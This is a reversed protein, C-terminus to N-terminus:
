WPWRQKLEDLVRGFELGSSPKAVYESAGLELARLRDDERTSSSFVVVPTSAYDPHNRMWQLLEFGSMGPLNLDLLLVTPLPYEKRDGYKGAGSMYEIAARGDRVVRLTSEMDKRAFAREMFLVDGDEDEVYLVTGGTPKAGATVQDTRCVTAEGGKLELWFRSGAGPESEVGVRGGMRQVVKRVLALGIGTGEYGPSARWFMDFVRSQMEKAIGIGKDEVSIQWWGPREEAWVRIEPVQGPKVFKVANGLLNSFCQTLGAENGLVVPLPWDVRIRARSPQFDPYSDLIGRLLVGTDVDELPLEQRVARSYNLADRILGDMREAATSIRSLMPKAEEGGAEIAVEAFGRMARLPSKLDHTITYSFHELETVMEQLRATREAVLRELEAQFEKRETIDYNVGDFRVLNGDPGYVGKGESHIWRVRGTAPDVVRHDMAYVRNQKLAAEVEERTADRDDPHLRSWFLDITAEEGPRMFFLERTRADWNLKELPMENLWLGVGTARLVTRLREEAERLAQEAHKRETVDRYVVGVAFVRGAGDRIPSIQSESFVVRGGVKVADEVRFSKGTAFAQDVRQMWLKMFEPVHGLGDRINKGIVKDRTTGVHDIAAQNAYLYNYERDWVLICDMSSEFIARFREESERVAAEAKKRETIDLVFAVGEHRQEDLMAAGIIVPVRTGDKRIYEKEYPTDVGTARLEELAYEDLSLYEALTMQRWSVRGSLLEERSYGVIQLFKQNADTIEGDLNWFIAGVMDSEFFRRARRESRELAEQEMRRDTIDTQVGDWVISGDAVVRPRSRISMWRVVGDRRRMPVEMQFDALDRTCREEESILRELYGPLILAHLNGPEQLAEEVSVGTLKEIGASVYTFRGLTDRKRVYQYVASNPLNDGLRRLRQEGERLAEETRKRESIDRVIGQFSGGPLRRGVVEGIVVSGDKHRFRWEGRAVEGKSLRSLEPGVRGREEPLVLEGVSRALIEERTYGLMECGARNVDIYRGSADALFIGDAAEEVLLRLREEVDGQKTTADM